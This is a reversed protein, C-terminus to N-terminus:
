QIIQNNNHKSPNVCTKSLNKNPEMDCGRCCMVTVLLLDGIVLVLISTTGWLCVLFMTIACLHSKTRTSHTCWRIQGLTGFSQIHSRCWFHGSMDIPPWRACLLSGWRCSRNGQRPSAAILNLIPWNDIPDWCRHKTIKRIPNWTYYWETSTNWNFGM